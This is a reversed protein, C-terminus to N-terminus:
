RPLSDLLQRKTEPKNDLMLAKDGVAEIYRKLLADRAPKSLGMGGLLQEGSVPDFCWEGPAENRALAVFRRAVAAPSWQTRVHAKAHRGIARRMQPHTILELVLRKLDEPRGFHSLNGRTVSAVLASQAAVDLGCVVAPVAFYAAEAAFHAMPTDSYIEDIVFDISQLTEIVEAHPKNQLRIFEILHGDTKMEAIVDEIVASGKIESNSPAHLIVSTDVGKRYGADDEAKRPLEVDAPFSMPIGVILYQAFSKTQMVAMPPHSVIVDAYEEANKIHTALAKTRRSLGSAPMDRRIGNLYPPRIDSGHYVCVITKGKRKLYALDRQRRDGTLAGDFSDGFGFIFVDYFQAALRVGMWEVSAALRHYLKEKATAPAVDRRCKSSLWQTWRELRTPPAYAFRNAVSSVQCVRIGLEEFGKRLQTYYGAIETFGM